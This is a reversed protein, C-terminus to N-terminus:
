QGTRRDPDHAARDRRHADPRLSRHPRHACDLRRCPVPPDGPGPARVLSGLPGRLPGRPPPGQRQRDRDPRARRVLRAPEGRSDLARLGRAPRRPPGRARGPPHSAYLVAARRPPPPSPPPFWAPPPPLPSLEGLWYGAEDRLAPLRDGWFAGNTPGLRDPDARLGAILADAAAQSRAAAGLLRLASTQRGPQ